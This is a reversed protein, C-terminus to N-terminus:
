RTGVAWMGVRASLSVQSESLGICHPLLDQWHADGICKLLKRWHGAALEPLLRGVMPCPRFSSANVSAPVHHCNCSKLWQEFESVTQELRQVMHLYCWFLPDAIAKGTTEITKEGSHQAHGDGYVGMGGVVEEKEEVSESSAVSSKKLLLNKNFFLRLPIELKM